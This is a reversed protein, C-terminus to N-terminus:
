ENAAGPRRYFTLAAGSAKQIAAHQATMAAVRDGPALMFALGMAECRALPALSHLGYLELRSWGLALAKGEWQDAFARATEVMVLWRAPDIGTFPCAPDLDPCIVTAVNAVRRRRPPQDKAPDVPYPTKSGSVGPASATAKTANTALTAIDCVQKATKEPLPPPQFPKYTM